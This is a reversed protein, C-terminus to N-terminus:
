GSPNILEKWVMPVEVGHYHNGSTMPWEFTGPRVLIGALQMDTLVHNDAITEVYAGAYRILDPLHEHIGLGEGAPALLMLDTVNWAFQMLDTGSGAQLIIPGESGAGWEEMPLILRVPLDNSVYEEKIGDLDYATPTVAKLDEAEFSVEMEAINTFHTRIDSM